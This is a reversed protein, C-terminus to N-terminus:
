RVQGCAGQSPGVRAALSTLQPEYTNLWSVAERPRTQSGVAFAADAGGGSQRVVSPAPSRGRSILSNSTRLPTTDIIQGIAYAYKLPHANVVQLCVKSGQRMVWPKNVDAPRAGLCRAASPGLSDATICRFSSATRASSGLRAIPPTGLLVVALGVVGAMHGAGGQRVSVM